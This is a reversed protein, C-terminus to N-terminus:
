VHCICTPGSDLCKILLNFILFKIKLVVTKLNQSNNVFVKDCCSQVSGSFPVDDQSWRVRTVLKYGTYTTTTKHLGVHKVVHILTRLNMRGYGINPRSKTNELGFRFALSFLSFPVTTCM